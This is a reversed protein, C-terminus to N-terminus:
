NLWPVDEPDPMRPAHDRGPVREMDAWPDAGEASRRFADEMEREIKDEYRPDAPDTIPADASLRCWHKAERWAYLMADALHDDCALSIKWRRGPVRSDPDWQLQRLEQCLDANAKPEILLRGARLDGNILEITANKRPKEAAKIPIAYRQRMEETIARGLGGTDCVIAIPEYDDVYAQVLEAVASPILKDQKYSDVVWIRDDKGSGHFGLVVVATSDIYGIDIGVVFQDLDDPLLDCDNREGYAYVQAESSHAWEGLWERRYVPDQDGWGYEGRVAAMEGAADPIHPNELMTWHWVRYPTDDLTCANFFPGSCTPNPTGIQWLSGALDALAPRIVDRVLSTLVYPRFSGAEDVLAFPHRDGRAKDLEDLKDVGVIGIKAGNPCEAVHNVEAFKLGLAYTASDQKLGSWMVRAAACTSTREYIPIFCGPHEAAAIMARVRGLHTKGSRRGAHVATYRADAALVEKQKPFLGAAYKKM